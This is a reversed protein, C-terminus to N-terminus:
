LDETHKTQLVTRNRDTLPLIGCFVLALPKLLACDGGVLKVELNQIFVQIQAFPILARM